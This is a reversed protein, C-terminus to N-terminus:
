WHFYHYLLFLLLWGTALIAECLKASHSLNMLMRSFAVVAPMHSRWKNVVNVAIGIGGLEVLKNKLSPYGVITNSIVGLVPTADDESAVHKDLCNVFICLLEPKAQELCPSKQRPHGPPGPKTLALFLSCCACQISADDPFNRLSSLIYTMMGGRQELEEIVAEMDESILNIEYLSGLLAEAFDSQTPYKLAIMLAEHLTETDVAERGSSRFRVSDRSLLVMIDHFRELDEYAVDIPGQM